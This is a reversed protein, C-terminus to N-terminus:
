EPDNSTSATALVAVTFRFTTPLSATLAATSSRTNAHVTDHAGRTRWAYISPGM